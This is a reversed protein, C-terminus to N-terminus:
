VRSTSTEPWRSTEATVSPSRSTPSGSTNTFHLYFTANSPRYVGVTEAGAGGGWNGSLPMDWPNGYSLVEPPDSADDTNALYWTATAPRFMAATRIGDGNWDGFVPLDTPDGFSFELYTVVPNLAPNSPVRGCFFTIGRRVCPSGANATVAAASVTGTTPAGAAAGASAPAAFLVLATVAPGIAWRHIAMDIGGALGLALDLSATGCAPCCLDVKGVVNAGDSPFPYHGYTVRHGM